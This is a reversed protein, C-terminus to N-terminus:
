IKNALFHKRYELPTVGTCKEFNRIFSNPNEFGVMRGIEVIKKDTNLLAEKAAEVIYAPTDFDPEGAGFGVVDLGQAKMKKAKTDTALTISSTIVSNKVSLEM